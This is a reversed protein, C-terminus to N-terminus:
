QAVEARERAWALADGKTTRISKPGLRYCRPGRGLAREQMLHRLSVTLLVAAEALTIPADSPLALLFSQDRGARRKTKTPESM